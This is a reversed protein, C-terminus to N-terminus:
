KSLRDILKIEIELGLAFAMEALFSTTTSGSNFFQQIAYESKGMRRSLEERSVKQLRMANHFECQLDVIFQETAFIMDRYTSAM